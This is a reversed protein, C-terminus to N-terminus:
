QKTWKGSTCKVEETWKAFSKRPCITISGAEQKAQEKNKGGGLESEEEFCQNSFIVCPLLFGTLGSAKASLWQRYAM